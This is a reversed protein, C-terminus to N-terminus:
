MDEAHIVDPFSRHAGTLIITDIHEINMFGPTFFQGAVDNQDISANDFINDRVYIDKTNTPKYHARFQRYKM